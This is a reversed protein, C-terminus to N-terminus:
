LPPTKRDFWCSHPGNASLLIKETTTRGARWRRECRERPAGSICEVQWWHSKRLFFVKSPHDDHLNTSFSYKILWRNFMEQQARRSSKHHDWQQERETSVWLERERTILEAVFDLVKERTTGHEQIIVMKKTNYKKSQVDFSHKIHRGTKQRKNQVLYLLVLLQFHDHWSPYGSSGNWM